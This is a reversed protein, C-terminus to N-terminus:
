YPLPTEAPEPQFDRPNVVEVKPEPDSTTDRLLNRYEKPNVHGPPANDFDEVTCGRVDVLRQLLKRAGLATSIPQLAM